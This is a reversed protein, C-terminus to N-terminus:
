RIWLYGKENRLNPNTLFKEVHNIFQYQKIGGVDQASYYIRFNQGLRNSWFDQKNFASARWQPNIFQLVEVLGGAMEGHAAGVGVFHCMDIYKGPHLPDELYRLSPGGAQSNFPGSRGLEDRVENMSM